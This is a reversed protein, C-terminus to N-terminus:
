RGTKPCGPKSESSLGLLEIGSERETAAGGLPWEEWTLGPDVQNPLAVAGLGEGMGKGGGDRGEMILRGRSFEAADKKGKRFGCQQASATFTLDAGLEAMGEMGRDGLPSRMGGLPGVWADMLQLGAKGGQEKGGGM